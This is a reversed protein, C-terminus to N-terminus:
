KLSVHEPPWCQGICLVSKTKLFFPDGESSDSSLTGLEIELDESESDKAEEDGETEDEDDPCAEIVARLRRAEFSSEGNLAVVANLEEKLAEM